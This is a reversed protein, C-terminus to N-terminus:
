ALLRELFPRLRGTDFALANDWCHLETTAM